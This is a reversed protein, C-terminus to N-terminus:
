GRLLAAVTLGTYLLLWAVTVLGAPRRWRGAAGSDRRPLGLLALPLLAPFVVGAWFPPLYRLLEQLGLFFWPGGIHFVGTGAPELPAPVVMCFLFLPALVSGQREWALRYRRVHDWSLFLWGLLLGIVHNAYLRKLGATSIAFLLDNLGPGLFPVALALNEAIAGASEGTADGRLVYGTFLLLVVVPLTAILLGWRWPPMAVAAPDLLTALLHLILGLFFLQSSYFHLSRWFSGFPLVVEMFVTSYYPAAVDYQWAVVLGSLLSVLLAALSKEGWRRNLLLVPLVAPRRYRPKAMVPDPLSTM